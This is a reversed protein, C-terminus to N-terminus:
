SREVLSEGALVNVVIEQLIRNSFFPMDLATVPCRGVCGGCGVCNYPLIEATHGGDPNPKLTVAKFPCIDVCRGCGRCREPDVVPSLQNDMLVAEATATSIEAALATGAQHPSVRQLTIPMVRYMGGQPSHFFSFDHRYFKKLSAKGTPLALSVVNEDTLCVVDSKWQKRVGDVVAKVTFAGFHGQVDEILAEGVERVGGASVATIPRSAASDPPEEGPRRCRHVLRVRFGQLALNRACSLGTESGGLIIVRGGIKTSGRRLPGLFRARLLAPRLFKRALEVSQDEPQDRHLYDRLNIMEFRGRDLGLREFLHSRARSRQDNCSICHFELPCCLCSGLIIRSLKNERVARAIRDAGEPHCVSFILERHVVEPVAGALELIKQLAGPSAMTHNCTCAFFGIRTEHPTKTPVTRPPKIVRRLGVAKAMAEGASFTGAMLLDMLDTPGKLEPIPCLIETPLELEVPWERPDALIIAPTTIEITKETRFHNIAKIETCVAECARCECCVGCALCRQAEATAQEVTLGLDVEEFDTRRVLPQRQAMEQRPRRPVDRSIDPYDGTGRPQELREAWCAKEGNLIEIIRAAAQRGSAMSSVVTSPGTVVDGAAFVGPRSTRLRHDVVVRGGPGTEVQGALGMRDLHPRQGIAVIVADAELVLPDGPDFVLRPPASASTEWHAPRATIKEVADRGDLSVPAAGLVFKVGEERAENIEHPSAPMQGEREIALITVQEAGLRLAARAADMASNGGGIVVTRVGVRAQGRLNLGSLFDVCHRVGPLDEGPINLRLDEHTGTTLLVAKFGARLLEDLADVPSNTKIRIGTEELAQIEADLVKRPLRFANIGTRLMGGAEAAAEFVTVELGQLRLFYAACLGAPGSGIVAVPPGGASPPGPLTPRGDRSEWDFLFRKITRIALPQDLENRRCASECPHHCVRGCVGPLPNDERIVALAEDFRGAATLALYAQVNVGLPCSQRCPGPARKDLELSRSPCYDPTRTLPPAPTHQLPCVEQCRRCGTCLEDDIYQPQQKIVAKYGNATKELSAIGARTLPTALPHRTVRLYLPRFQFDLDDPLDADDRMSPPLELFHRAKAAWVVPLGSDTLDKAVKLAGYGAGILLVAESPPSTLSKTM